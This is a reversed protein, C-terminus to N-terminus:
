FFVSFADFPFSRWLFCLKTEFAISWLVAGPRTGWLCSRLFVCALSCSGGAGSKDINRLELVLGLKGIRAFRFVCCWPEFLAELATCLSERSRQVVWFEEVQNKLGEVLPALSEDPQM